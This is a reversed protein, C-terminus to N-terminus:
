VWRKSRAMLPATSFQRSALTKVRGKAIDFKRDYVGALRPDYWDADKMMYAKALAGYGLQEAFKDYLARDLECTDQGPTVFLEVMYFNCKDHGPAPFMYIDTPQLYYFGPPAWQNPQPPISTLLPLNGRDPVQVNNVAFPVYGDDIKIVYDSVNAVADIYVTRTLFKVNQTLDIAALRVFHQAIDDHVNLAYPKVYPMFQSLPVTGGAPAVTSCCSM